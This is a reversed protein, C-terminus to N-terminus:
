LLNAEKETLIRYGDNLLTSICYEIAKEKTEFEVKFGTSKFPYLISIWTKETPLLIIAILENKLSYIKYKPVPIGYHNEFTISLPKLIKLKNM